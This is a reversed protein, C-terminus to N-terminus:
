NKSILDNTVANFVVTYPKGNEIGTIKFISDNEHSITISNGLNIFVRSRLNLTSASAHIRFGGNIPDYVLWKVASMEFKHSVENAQKISILKSLETLQGISYLRKSKHHKKEEDKGEIFHIVEPIIEGILEEGVEPIASTLHKIFKKSM